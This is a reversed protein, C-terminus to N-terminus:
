SSINGIYNSVEQQLLLSAEEGIISELEVQVEQLVEENQMHTLNVAENLSDDSVKIGTVVTILADAISKVDSVM